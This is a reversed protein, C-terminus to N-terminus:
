GNRKVEDLCETLVKKMIGLAYPYTESGFGCYENTFDWLAAVITTKLDIEAKDLKEKLSYDM